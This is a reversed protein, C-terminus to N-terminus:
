SVQQVIGQFGGPLHGLRVLPEDLQGDPPDVLHQHDFHFVTEGGAGDLGCPNQLGCLLGPAQVAPAQFAAAALYSPM